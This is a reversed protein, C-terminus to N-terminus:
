FAQRAKLQDFVKCNALGPERPEIPLRWEKHLFVDGEFSFFETVNHDLIAETIRWAMWRLRQNGWDCTCTTLRLVEWRSDSWVINCMYAVGNHIVLAYKLDLIIQRM